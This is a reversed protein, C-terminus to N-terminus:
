DYIIVAMSDLIILHNHCIAHISSIFFVYLSNILLYSSCLGSPLGLHLHSNLTIEFGQSLLIHFPGLPESYPNNIFQQSCTIYSWTRHFPACGLQNLLYLLHELWDACCINMLSLAVHKPYLHVPMTLGSRCPVCLPNIVIPILNSNTVTTIFFCM